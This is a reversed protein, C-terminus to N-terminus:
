FPLKRAKGGKRISYNIAMMLTLHATFINNNNNEKHMIESEAPSLGKSKM